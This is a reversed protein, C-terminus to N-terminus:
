KNRKLEQAKCKERHTNGQISDGIFHQIVTTLVPLHTKKAWDKLSM